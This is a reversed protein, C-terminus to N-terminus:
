ENIVPNPVCRREFTATQEQVDIASTLQNCLGVKKLGQPHSSNAATEEEEEEKEDKTKPSSEKINVSMTM